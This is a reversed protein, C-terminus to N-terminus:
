VHPKIGIEREVKRLRTKIDDSLLILDQCKKISEYPGYVFSKGRGDGVGLSCWDLPVKWDEEEVILHHYRRRCAGFGWLAGLMFMVINVSVTSVLWLGDSM